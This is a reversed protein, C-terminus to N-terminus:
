QMLVKDVEGWESPKWQYVEVGPCASLVQLWEYQEPTLTGKESKVEAFIVRKREKHALVLDPFGKGDAQVPTQYYVSGDQRQVGVGRFHVVMYGLYQALDIIQQQFEAENIAMKDRSFKAM